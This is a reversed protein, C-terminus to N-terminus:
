PLWFEDKYAPLRKILDEKVSVCLTMSLSNSAKIGGFASPNVSPLKSAVEKFHLDNKV